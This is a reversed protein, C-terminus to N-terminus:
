LVDVLSAVRDVGSNREAYLLFLYYFFFFFFFFLMDDITDFSAGSFSLNMWHQPSTESSRTLERLVDLSMFRLPRIVLNALFYLSFCCGLSVSM